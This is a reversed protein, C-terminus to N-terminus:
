KAAIASAAVKKWNGLRAADLDGPEWRCQDIWQRIAEARWAELARQVTRLHKDTFTGIPAVDQLLKLTDVASIGPEVKLWERVQLEYADLM